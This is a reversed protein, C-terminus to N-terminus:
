NCYKVDGLLNLPNHLVILKNRLSQFHPAPLLKTLIDVLQEEFPTFKVLLSKHLVCDRIFHYDVEIHKM